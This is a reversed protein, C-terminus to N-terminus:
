AQAPLQVVFKTGEGPVSDVSIKGEHVTVIWSVISLGLGAGGSQRSRAKDVRYFRDFVYPQAAEPIGIGTDAVTIQAHGNQRVLTVSVQGGSGTFKVANELLNLVMRKLLDEDGNLFVPESVTQTVLHVGKRNALVQAARACDSIVDNLSLSQKRLTPSGELPQRALVFLDEVIRSLREAEEKILALSEQYENMTRPKGLAVETEGRLVAIPTRLEHSADAIFRQQEKFSHELRNLLENITTGLSGLEDRPNTIDLRSSLNEVSIRQTQRNMRAVPLLSKRALFYGGFSALLLVVAVGAFFDRRLQRLGDDIVSMPEAVTAFGIQKESSLPVIALRLGNLTNVSVGQDRAEKLTSLPINVVIGSANKSSAITHGYNDTVLVYREPFTLETLVVQGAREVSQQEELEERYASAVTNATSRLSKDQREYFVASTAKYLVFAFVVLSLALVCAYWLALRIRVSDFM